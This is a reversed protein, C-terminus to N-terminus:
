NDGLLEPNEYINGIIEEVGTWVYGENLGSLYWCPMGGLYNGGYEKVFIVKHPCGRSCNIIDGEYVEKGNVDKLGVYQMIVAIYHAVTRWSRCEEDQLTVDESGIGDIVKAMEERESDWARFKLEKM